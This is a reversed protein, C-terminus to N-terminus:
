DQLLRLNFHAKQTLSLQTAGQLHAKLAQKTSTSDCTLDQMDHSQLQMSFNGASKHQPMVRIHLQVSVNGASMHQPVAHAQLQM